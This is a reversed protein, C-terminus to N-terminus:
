RSETPVDLVVKPELKKLSKVGIGKVRLLDALKRFGKLRTRLAIIAEARKQGIGPLTTLEKPTASNLVVRGDPLVTPTSPANGDTTDGSAAPSSPANPGCPPASPRPVGAGAAGTTREPDSSPPNSPPPDSPPPPGATSRDTGTGPSSPRPMATASGALWEAPSLVNALTPPESGASPPAGPLSPQAMSLAGIAALGLGGFSVAIARRLLPKWANWVASQHPLPSLSGENIGQTETTSTQGM